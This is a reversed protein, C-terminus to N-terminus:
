GAQESTGVGYVSSSLFAANEGEEIFSTEAVGGLGDALASTTSSQIVSEGFETLEALSTEILEALEITLAASAM